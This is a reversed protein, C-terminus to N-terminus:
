PIKWTFKKVHNQSGLDCVQQLLDYKAVNIEKVQFVLSVFYIELVYVQRYFRIHLM